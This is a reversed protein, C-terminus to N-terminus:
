AVGVLSVKLSACLQAVEEKALILTKGAEVAIVDVGAEAATRITDPGLV